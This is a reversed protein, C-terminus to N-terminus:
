LVDRRRFVLYGVLPTVVTWLVLVGLAFVGSQALTAVVTDTSTVLPHDTGFETPTFLYTTAEVYANIPNSRGVWFYLATPREVFREPRDMLLWQIAPWAARLLAFVGVAMAVAHNDTKALASALLGIGVFIVIYPVTLVGLVLLRMAGDIGIVATVVVSLLGLAIFLTGTLLGARSLFKGIYADARSNPLGLLFRVSGTSREGVLASYSVLLAFLPILFSLGSGIALVLFNVDEPATDTPESLITGVLMLLTFAAAILTVLRPRGLFALVLSLLVTLLTIGAAVLLPTEPPRLALMPVIVLLFMFTLVSAGTRARFVCTLDRRLVDEWSM